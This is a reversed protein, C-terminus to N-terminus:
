GFLIDFTEKIFAAATTDSKSPIFFICYCLIALTILLVVTLILIPINLSFKPGYPIIEEDESLYDEDQQTTETFSTMDSFDYEEHEDSLIDPDDREIDPQEEESEDTEFLMGASILVDEDVMEEVETVDSLLETDESYIPEAEEDDTEMLFGIQQDEIPDIDEEEHETIYDTSLDDIPEEESEDGDNDTIFDTKLEDETLEDAEADSELILDESVISDEIPVDPLNESAKTARERLENAYIEEIYPHILTFMLNKRVVKNETLLIMTQPGSEIICGGFIGDSTVLPTSGSIINIEEDSKIGYTKNDVLATKTGIAGAVSSISGMEGFLSGVVIIIQSRSVARALSHIMTKRDPSKDTLLRMRCCGCLNFEMEFDTNTKYYVIDVKMNQFM